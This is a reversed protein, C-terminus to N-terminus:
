LFNYSLFSIYNEELYITIFEFPFLCINIIKNIENAIENIDINEIENINIENIFEKIDVNEIDNKIIKKSENIKLIIDKPKDFENIIDWEKMM